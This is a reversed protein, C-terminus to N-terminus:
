SLSSVVALTSSITATLSLVADHQVGTNAVGFHAALDAVGALQLVASLDPADCVSLLEAVGPQVYQSLIPHFPGSARGALSEGRRDPRRTASRSLRTAQAVREPPCRLPKRPDCGDDGRDLAVVGDRMKEVPRQVFHHAFSAVCFPEKTPGSLNVKSKLLPGSVGCCIASMSFSTLSRMRSVGATLQISTGEASPLGALVHQLEESFFVAVAHPHHLNAAPRLGEVAVAHFQAAAGV